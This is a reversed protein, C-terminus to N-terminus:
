KDPVIDIITVEPPALFRLPPGWTGSGRSVHFLSGAGTKVTGGTLHYKLFVLLTFPFLQGQHSHGSLQLDFFGDGSKAVVPRHKLLLKFRSSDANKLLQIEPSYSEMANMGTVAPDDAGTVSLHQGIQETENRLVRFGAKSTFELAQRLGVYVEHNGIVAFMGLPPKIEAMMVALHGHSDIKEEQNLRGDVLDGTSVLIDPRAEKVQRLIRKLREEGVLLGLHVDSIQVVRIRGASAPLKSSKVSLHETAINRAEFFSYITAAFCFLLAIECTLGAGLVQPMESATRRLYLWVCLRTLDIAALASAFLFIAGMWIYGPWALTVAITDYGSREFLRVLLPMFTMLVMLAAIGYVTHSSPNFANKLRHLAYAHMGGYLSLFSALFLFM